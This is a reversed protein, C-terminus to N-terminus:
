GDGDVGAPKRLVKLYVNHARKKRKTAARKESGVSLTLRSRALQESAKGACNAHTRTVAVGKSIGGLAGLVALAVPHVLSERLFSNSSRPYLMSSQPRAASLHMSFALLSHLSM